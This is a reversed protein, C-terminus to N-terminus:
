PKYLTLLELHSLNITFLWYKKGDLATAKTTFTGKASM